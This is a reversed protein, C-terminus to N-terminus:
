VWIVYLIISYIIKSHIIYQLLYFIQMRSTHDYTCSPNVDYVYVTVTNTHYAGCHASTRVARAQREFLTVSYREGNQQRENTSDIGECVMNM